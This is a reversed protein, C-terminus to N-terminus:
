NVSRLGDVIRVKFAMRIPALAAMIGVLLASFFQMFITNASVVLTPFLTSSFSALQKAVPGTLAIALSGGILALVVSEGLILRAIYVPGFGLAKLTAYEKTRESATMAMTNAMVALIIFIVVFSVIRISLLIAETQKVFGIQFARETETLTEAFSNKFLADIELGLSDVKNIHIADVVVFGIQDAQTKSRSRLNENLYEWHFLLQATDTKPDRGEFIGRVVFEWNGPFITGRLPIVDGIKFGYRDALKRGVIAGRRDNLFGLREQESILIESYINLYSPAQIAFQPFFNKSDKYIGGFWNVHSAERVGNVSRIREYHTVPLPATFSIANRVILRSPVAGDVGAYWADVITQLVGFALIAIVIGLITLLSRLRQRQTNRMVLKYWHIM